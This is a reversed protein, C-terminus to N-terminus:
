IMMILDTLTGMKLNEFTWDPNGLEFARVRSHQQLQPALGVLQPLGDDSQLGFLVVELLPLLPLVVIHTTDASIYLQYNRIKLVQWKELVVHM